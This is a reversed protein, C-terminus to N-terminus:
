FKGGSRLPGLNRSLFSSLACSAACNRQCCCLVASCPFDLTPTGLCFVGPRRPSPRDRDAWGPGQQNKANERVIFNGWGATDRKSAIRSIAQPSSNPAFVRDCLKM